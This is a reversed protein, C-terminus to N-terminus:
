ADSDEGIEGLFEADQAEKEFQEQLISVHDKCAAIVSSQDLEHSMAGSRDITADVAFTFGVVPKAGCFTCVLNERDILDSIGEIEM